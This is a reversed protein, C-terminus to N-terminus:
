NEKEKKSLFNIADQSHPLKYILIDGNISPMAVKEWDPFLFVGSGKFYGSFLEYKEKTKRDFMITKRPTTVAFYRADPAFFLHVIKYPYNYTEGHQWKKNEYLWTHITGSATVTAFVKGNEHWIIKRALDRRHFSQFVNKQGQIYNGNWLEIHGDNYSCALWKKNPSEETCLFIRNKTPISIHEKTVIDVIHLGKLDNAFIHQNNLSFSMHKSRGRQLKLLQQMSKTAMDLVLLEGNEQLNALYREDHSFRLCVFDNRNMFSHILSCPKNGEWLMFRFHFPQVVYTGKSSVLVPKQVVFNSQAAANKKRFHQLLEHTSKHAVYERMYKQRTWRQLFFQTPTSSLLVINQSADFVVKRPTEKVKFESIKRFLSDWLIVKKDLGCTCFFRHDSSFTIDQIQNEHATLITKQHAVFDYLFVSGMHENYIIHRGSPGFLINKPSDRWDNTNKKIFIKKNLSWIFMGGRAVGAIFKSDRSMAVDGKIRVLDGNQANFEKNQGHIVLRDDNKAALYAFYKENASIIFKKLYPLRTARKSVQRRKNAAFNLFFIQGKDIYYIGSADHKFQIPGEDCVIKFLANHPTCDIGDKIEWCLLYARGHQPHPIIEAMLKGNPSLQLFSPFRQILTSVPIKIKQQPFVVNPLISQGLLIINQQYRKLKEQLGKHAKNKRMQQYANQLESFAKRLPKIAKTHKKLSISNTAITMHAFILSVQKELTTQQERQQASRLQINQMFLVLSILPVAVLFFVQVPHRFCYKTIKTIVGAPRTKIPLHKQVREIEQRLERVRQYRHERKTQICHMCVVELDKNVRPNILSPSPPDTNMIAFFLGLVEDEEYPLRGTLMQYLIVGLAYIDSRKDAKQGRIIEPAMYRPTGMINGTKQLTYNTDLQRAIGFDMVKVGNKSLMINEPKIDRHIVQNQHAYEIAQCIQHFIDLYENESRQVKLWKQLTIGEVLEMSLFCQPFTGTDYVTVINPHQLRAMAAAEEQFHVPTESDNKAVIKVACYRKLLVDRAKYVIAMGGHGLESIIKYRIPFIDKTVAVSWHQADTSIMYSDDLQNQQFFHAIQESTYPGHHQPQNKKKVYYHM